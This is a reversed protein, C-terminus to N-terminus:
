HDWLPQNQVINKLLLMQTSSVCFNSKISLYVICDNETRKDAGRALCWSQVLRLVHKEQGQLFGFLVYTISCSLLMPINHLSGPLCLPSCLTSYFNM